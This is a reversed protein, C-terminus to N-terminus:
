KTKTLTIEKAKSTWETGEWVRGNYSVFAIQKKGEFIAGGSWNGSGLDNEHIFAQVVESAEEFSSVSVKKNKEAGYLPRDPDQGFDPNGVSSLEVKLKM